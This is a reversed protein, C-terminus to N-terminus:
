ETITITITGEPALVALLYHNFYKKAVRQIDEPTVADILSLYRDAYDYGYGLIEYMGLLRGQAATTEQGMVFTGKLWKKMNELEITSVPEECFRKFEAVIGERAVQFNEPATIMFANVLSPGVMQQYSSGIIYALGRKDRLETYLRNGMGSAGLINNLVEMVPADKQLCNPAPYGLILYAGEVERPQYLLKDEKLAPSKKTTRRPLRGKKMRGFAKEFETIVEEPDVNGVVTFVMNNPIYIKEHWAVLDERTLSAITEESGIILRGYPHEGYFGQSFLISVTNFPHDDIGKLREISEKKGIEVDWEAFQPHLILDFYFDLARYFGPKTVTMWVNGCDAGSGSNWHAGVKELGRYIIHPERSTTGGYLLCRQMLASIGIQDPAEYLTGMRAYLNVAVLEHDRAPKILLTLGNPFVKKIVNATLSVPAPRVGEEGGALLLAGPFLSLLILVGWVLSFRRQRKHNSLGCLRKIWVSRM